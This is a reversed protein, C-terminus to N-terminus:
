EQILQIYGLEIAIELDQTEHNIIDDVEFIQKSWQNDIKVWLTCPQLIKYNM